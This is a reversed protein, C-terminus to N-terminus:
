WMLDDPIQYDKYPDDADVVSASKENLSVIVKPDRQMIKEAVLKPIVFYNDNQKAVALLGLALQSQKLDDVYIKRVTKDDVFQYGVDGDISLKNSQILQQIQAQVAREEAAEQKQRNLARDREVKALREQEIRLKDEDVNVVGKKTPQTQKKQKRQEHKIAKAKKQDVLGAGLLQEQLSKAM